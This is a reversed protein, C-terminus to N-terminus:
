TREDAAQNSRSADFQFELSTLAILYEFFKHRPDRFDDAHGIGALAEQFRELFPFLEVASADAVAHRQRVCPICQNTENSFGRDREATVGLTNGEPSDIALRRLQEEQHDACGHGLMELNERPDTAQNAIDPQTLTKKLGITRLGDDFDDPLSLLLDSYESL